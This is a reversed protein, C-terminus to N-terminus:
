SIIHQSTVDTSWDYPLESQFEHDVWRFRSVRGVVHVRPYLLVGGQMLVGTNPRTPSNQQGRSFEEKLENEVSPFEEGELWESGSRQAPAATESHDVLCSSDVLSPPFRGKDGGSNVM